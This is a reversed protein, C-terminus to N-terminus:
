KLSKRQEILQQVVDPNALTTVDGLNSFDNCAIKRLIRRMIKGSRTTPVSKVVMIHEPTCFKGLKNRIGEKIANTLADNIEATDIAQAYVFIAQGKVDHPIGVVAAQIIDPHEVVVNEVEGSGIRHGSVNMVDDVRGTIWYYGDKDRKAGDGTEYCGPYNAMYTRLYRQHDGYVTRAIGPWPRKIVLIGSQMGDDGDEETKKEADAATADAPKDDAPKDSAEFEIELGTKKDLLAPQIGFFPLTASGPKLDTAGPFPTIVIGGTETQWYTDVVPCESNGVVEYYWKWPEPNIPEGVTGLVKLSSRDYKKVIEDGFKMLARIATPATYFVSIKHREVMDWYRGADPYTPISEFMFTTAGNALPGYVIYSHGTIWGVDAVCAYVDGPQIDFVYRHTAMTYVLYGATTHVVGKPKGTSGSTYLMFLIDESDMVECPVYPREQQVLENLNYDRGKVMNCENETRMWVFVAEVNPCKKLGEDVTQKLPVTKKGRLGENATIVFRANADIVRDSIADRGFGGFIVSHPAGIRACALMAYAAQPIMPMYIVVVDGRRVGYRRLVNAMKCVEEQLEKYTIRQTDSPDNGEWIIATADPKYKVWRDVCNFCVNLKGNLFWAIDGKEFSGAQVTDFPASWDINKKAFNGWFRDSNKLADQYAANRSKFSPFHAREIDKYNVEVVDETTKTDAEEKPQEATAEAM